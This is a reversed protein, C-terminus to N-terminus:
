MMSQTSRSLMSLRNSFIKEIKARTEDMVPTKSNKLTSTLFYPMTGLPPISGGVCPNETCSELISVWYSHM